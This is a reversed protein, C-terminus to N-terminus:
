DLHVGLDLGVLPEDLRFQFLTTAAPQSRVIFGPPDAVSRLPSTLRATTQVRRGRFLHTVESVRAVLKDGFRGGWAGPIAADLRRVPGDRFEILDGVRVRADGHLFVIEGLPTPWALDDLLGGAIRDADDERSISFYEFTRAHPGFHDISDGNSYTKSFPTTFPNGDVHLINALSRAEEGLALAHQTPDHFVVRDITEARRFTVASDPSISWVSGSACALATLVEYVGGRVDFFSLTEPTSEISDSNPGTYSFFDKLALEPVHHRGEDYLYVEAHGTEVLAANACHGGGFVLGLYRGYADIRDDFAGSADRHPNLEIHAIGNTDLFDQLFQKALDGARKYPSSEYQANTWAAVEPHRAIAHSNRATEEADVLMLRLDPWAIGDVVLGAITDGDKAYAASIDIRAAGVWQGVAIGGIELENAATRRADFKAFERIAGDPAAAHDVAYHVPGPAANIADRVIHDIARNIYVRTISTNGERAAREAEVEIVEHFRVFQDLILKRTDSWQPRLSVVPAEAFLAGDVEIRVRYGIGLTAITSPLIGELLDAQDATRRTASFLPVEAFSAIRRNSPDLIQITYTM